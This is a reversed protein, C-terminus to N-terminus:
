ANKRMGGMNKIVSNLASIFAVYYKWDLTLWRILLNLVTYLVHSLWKEVGKLHRWTFIFKNRNSVLRRKVNSVNNSITASVEHYIKCTDDYKLTYGKELARQALDADEWYFPSYIEDYGGLDKLIDNKCVFCCGLLVFQSNIEPYFKNSSPEIKQNFRLFGRKYYLLSTREINLINDVNDYYNIIDGKVAFVDPSTFNKIANSFFNETFTVDTNSICTYYNRTADIGRNCSFSFGHNQRNEIIKIHPYATKLFSISDDTSHDDVVIIEHEFTEIAKILSPLNKELLQRGNYNPLVVSISQNHDPQSM